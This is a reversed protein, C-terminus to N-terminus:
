RFHPHFDIKYKKKLERKRREIAPNGYYIYGARAVGKFCSNAGIVALENLTSGDLITANAAIWVNDKIVVPNTIYEFIDSETRHTCSYIKSFASISVDKGIKIGGSGDLVCQDNIVSRAGMSIGEPGVIITKIGIRAGKSIKMGSLEYFFRRVHWSPIRNVFRNLFMYQMDKKLFFYDM